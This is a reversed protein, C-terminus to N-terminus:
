NNDWLALQLPYEPKPNVLDLALQSSYHMDFLRVVVYTSLNPIGLPEEQILTGIGVSKSVCVCPMVKAQFDWSISNGFQM